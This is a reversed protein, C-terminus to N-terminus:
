GPWRAPASAPQMLQRVGERQWLLASAEEIPQELTPSKRHCCRSADHLGMTRPFLFHPVKKVKRHSSRCDVQQEVVTPPINALRIQLATGCCTHSGPKRSSAHLVNPRQKNWARPVPSQRPLLQQPSGDPAGRTQGHKHAISLQLGQGCLPHQDIGQSRCAIPCICRICHLM